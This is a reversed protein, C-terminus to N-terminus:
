DVQTNVIHLKACSGSGVGLGNLGSLNRSSVLKVTSTRTTGPLNALWWRSSTLLVATIIGLNAAALTLSLAVPNPVDKSTYSM